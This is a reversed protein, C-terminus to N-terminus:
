LSHHANGVRSSNSASYFTQNPATKHLAAKVLPLTVTFTTGVGEQSELSIEGGHTEVCKKVITLGLGTGAITEVNNARYFPEFLQKQDEQPIGIGQDQIRFTVTKEQGILEFWVTSGVPSYKIANTLLNVLIHRLLSEDWLSDGLEGHCNFILTLDKQRMSLQAEEVLKRCFGELALPAHKCKLKGADAQCILLVEDLLRAMDNIASRILGFNNLKKEKSLQHDNNQLLGTALMITTLPSRFDHSLMSVFESKLQNIEKAKLLEDTRQQVQVELVQNVTRLAESVQKREIAYCISRVLMEYNVQRKVLFDQAGQRVAELALEDDNMSTLVVIPLSPAYSLLPALSALGQSDPLTLDLLVVDVDFCDTKLRDLAEGLRKVHVLSFQKFKAQKLLEQLFRAEALSDEILLIKITSAPM